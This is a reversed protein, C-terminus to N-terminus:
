GTYLSPDMDNLLHQPAPTNALAMGLVNGPAIRGTPQDQHQEPAGVEQIGGSTVEYELAVEAYAPSKVLQALASM